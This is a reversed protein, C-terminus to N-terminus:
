VAAAHLALRVDIGVAAVACAQAIFGGVQVATVQYGLGHVPGLIGGAEQPVHQLAEGLWCPRRPYCTRATGKTSTPKGQRHKTTRSSGNVASTIRLAARSRESRRFGSRKFRSGEGGCVTHAMAFVARIAHGRRKKNACSPGARHVSAGDIKGGACATRLAARSRESRRFGSRRCQSEGGGCVTHCIVM